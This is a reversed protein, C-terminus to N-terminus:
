DLISTVKVVDVIKGELRDLDEHDKKSPEAWLTEGDTEPTRVLQNEENGDSSVNVTLEKNQNMALDVELPPDELNNFFMSLDTFWLATM